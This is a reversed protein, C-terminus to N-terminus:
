KGGKKQIIEKIASEILRKRQEANQKPWIHLNAEQWALALVRGLNGNESAFKSIETQNM